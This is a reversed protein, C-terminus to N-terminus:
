PKLEALTARAYRVALRVAENRFARSAERHSTVLEAYSDDGCMFYTYEDVGLVPRIRDRISSRGIEIGNRLVIARVNSMAIRGDEIAEIDDPGHVLTDLFPAEDVECIATISGSQFKWIELYTM